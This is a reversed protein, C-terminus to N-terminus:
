KGKMDVVWVEAQSGLRFPIGWFGYGSSVVVHTGNIEEHGYAVRNLYKVIFNAPFVQGNHTHGSVQLDIPLAVNQEIQSPRHDLLITPLSTDVEAVLAQASKRAHYHEDYRGIFNLRVTEGNKVIDMTMSEDNLLIAKSDKIAANIKEFAHTRYLDHNGLSVVTGFSPATMARAFSTAMEDAEYIKTDDDMIDGPMLMVDVQQGVLIETLKDLQRRGVLSGLHTDSVVAFRVDFAMPKDINITLHRVVPTYANYVALGVFGGFSVLSLARYLIAGEIGMKKFLAIAVVSVIVSLFGIWLVALYGITLRFMGFFLGVLFLNSIILVVIAVPLLKIQVFPRLLWVISWALGFGLGQLLLINIVLM